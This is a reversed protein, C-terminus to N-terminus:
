KLLIMKKVSSYENTTIKYFYVGSPLTVGNFEVKYNGPPQIQSVLVAVEIGLIDYVKLEVLSQRPLSYGIVTKPNFPNPFNQNLTFSGPKADVEPISTITLTAIKNRKNNGLFTPWHAVYAKETATHFDPDGFLFVDGNMAGNIVVGTETVLAPAAFPIKTDYVWDVTLSDQTIDIAYFVGHKTGVYLNGTNGIAPTSFISSEAQFTKVPQSAAIFHPDFALLKAAVTGIYVLGNADIVPSCNSVQSGLNVKWNDEAFGDWRVRHLVGNSSAFYFMSNQEDPLFAPTITVPGDAQKEWLLEASNGLDKLAILSPSVTSTGQTGIIVANSNDPLKLLIPSALITNYTVYSWKPAGTLADIAKVLGNNTVTYLLTGDESIAPSSKVMGGMAQDWISNLQNDFCYARMNDSGVYLLEQSSISLASQISGGTLFQKKITGTSDFGYVTKDQSTVYYLNGAHSIASLVPGSLSLIPGIVDVKVSTTAKYGLNTTVTLTITHNGTRLTMETLALSDVAVGDVSWRYGIISGSQVSSATGDVTRTVSGDLDSDLWRGETQIIANIAPLKIQFPPSLVFNSSNNYDSIRIKCNNSPTNPVTWLFSSDSAPLMGAGPIVNWTSGGDTTLELRISNINLSGWAIIKQSGINITENAFISSIFLYPFNNLYRAVVPRSFGQETVLGSVVIKGDTQILVYHSEDNDNTLRSILKGGNGFSYDLAGNPLYRALAFDAINVEQQYMLNAYGAVIIRGDPQMCIAYPVDANSTFSTQVVGNVGFSADLNGNALYRIIGFDGVNVDGFLGAVLVKNDDQIRIATAGSRTGYNAAIIGQSGFSNDLQGSSTLKITLYDDNGSYQNRGSGTAYVENHHNCDIGYLTSTYGSPKIVTRGNTGFTADVTGDSLMRTIGFALKDFSYESTGLLIRGAYDIKISKLDVGGATISISTTGSHGFSTDTTGNANLRTVIVANLLSYAAIIKGNSLAVVRNNTLTSNHLLTRVGKTGFSTDIYGSNTLKIYFPSRYIGPYCSLIMGGDNLLTHMTARSHGSIGRYIYMGNSGFSSDLIGDQGSVTLLGVFLLIGIFQLFRM